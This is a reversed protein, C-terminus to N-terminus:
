SVSGVLGKLSFCPGQTTSFEVDQFRAVGDEGTKLEAAIRDFAKSARNGPDIPASRHGNFKILEGVSCEAPPSLPDVETHDENSACLLMGASVIGKLARPKLNALVLVKRGQLEEEKLYKVLGSVITRPGTEEGIDVKEVYLSDADPHKSVETIKGVRIELRSLETMEGTDEQVETNEAVSASATTQFKLEHREGHELSRISALYETGPQLGSLKVFGRTVTRLSSIEPRSVPHYHVKFVSPTSTTWALEATTETTNLPNASCTAFLRSSRRGAFCFVNTFAM